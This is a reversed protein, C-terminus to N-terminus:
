GHHGHAMIAVLPGVADIRAWAAAFAERVRPHDRVGAPFVDDFELFALPDELAKRGFARARDLQADFSQRHPEVVALYRAWGALAMVAGDIPGGHALHHQLTPILFIPYKATGDICLRAIQDRVGTNEFREFITAAYQERPHGPIATLSPIAEEALFCQLYHRIAPNSVAEDVFEIGALFALYAINSHAANLMRLKYLEWPHVDDTFLAGADEWRPRGAAFRDEIVWQRFTEGVVPWRDDIGCAERLWARDGDTTAPTIRDVMSNPFSCHGDIWHVLEDSFGTAAALVAQRAVDGNGPLNDCSLVTVPASGASRRRELGDALMALAVPPAGNGSTSYGAETITLSVVEVAPDAIRRAGLSHDDSALCYDTISGVVSVEARGTQREILTYLYDQAELADRMHRDGDLVGVGCIRWSSGGGAVDDTYRAMHSRHFGGVGIHVIRPPLAHRDYRPVRALRRGIEPLNESNLALFPGVRVDLCPNNLKALSTKKQFQKCESV